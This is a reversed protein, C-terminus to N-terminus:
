KHGLRGALNVLLSPRQPQSDALFQRNNERRMVAHEVYEAKMKRLTERVGRTEGKRKYLQHQRATLVGLDIPTGTLLKIGLAAGAGFGVAMLAPVLANSVTYSVAGYIGLFAPDQKFKQVTYSTMTIPSFLRLASFVRKSRGTLREEMRDAVLTVKGGWLKFPRAVATKTRQWVRGVRGKPAAIAKEAFAASGPGSLALCVLTSVLFKLM